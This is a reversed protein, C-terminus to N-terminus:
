VFCFRSYIWIWDSGTDFIVKFKEKQSGVYLETFIQVDQYDEIPATILKQQADPAAAMSALPLGNSHKSFATRQSKMQFNITKESATLALLLSVLPIKM